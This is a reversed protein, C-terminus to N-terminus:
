LLAHLRGEVFRSGYWHRTAGRRRTASSTIGAPLAQSYGLREGEGQAAEEVPEVLDVLGNAFDGSDAATSSSIMALMLSPSALCSAM